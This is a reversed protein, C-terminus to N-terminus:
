AGDMVECAGKLWKLYRESGAVIDFAVVEPVEYGHLEVVRDKFREFLDRRTKFICLAESEHAVKGKWRYISEVGPVINCCATLGESVLNDAIHRAEEVGSITVLCIILGTKEKREPV